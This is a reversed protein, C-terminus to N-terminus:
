TFRGHYGGRFLGRHNCWCHKGCGVVILFVLKAAQTRRATPPVFYTGNPESLTSMKQKNTEDM